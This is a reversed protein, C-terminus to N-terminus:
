PTYEIISITSKIATSFRSTGQSGNFTLTGAVHMGARYKWTIATTSTLPFDYILIHNLPGTSGAEAQTTARANAETDKFLAGIVWANASPSLSARVIILLRNTSVTPTIALTMFEGGEGSQPLTDDLPITTPTTAAASTGTEVIQAVKGPAAAWVPNAGAGQTKLFQGSTGPALDNWLTLDRFLISGQASGFVSDIISSLTRYAPSQGPAGSPVSLIENANGIGLRTIVSVSNRILIDNDSTLITALLTALTTRNWRGSIFRAIDNDSAGTPVMILENNAM